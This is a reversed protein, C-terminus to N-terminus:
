IKDKDGCDQFVIYEKKCCDKIEEQRWSLCSGNKWKDKQLKQLDEKKHSMWVNLTPLITSFHSEMFTFYEEYIGMM